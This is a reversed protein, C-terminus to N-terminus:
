FIELSEKLLPLKMDKDSLIPNNVMWDIALDPDNWIIGGESPAHYFNDVKYLFETEPKLVLYGHAFGPPVLLSLFNHETLE